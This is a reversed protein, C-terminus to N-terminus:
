EQEESLEDVLLLGLSLETLARRLSDRTEPESVHDSAHSDPKSLFLLHGLQFLFQGDSEFLLELLPDQPDENLVYLVRVSDVVEEELLRLLGLLLVEGVQSSAALLLPKKTLGQNFGNLSPVTLPCSHDEADPLRRGEAFDVLACIDIALNDFELHRPDDAPESAM